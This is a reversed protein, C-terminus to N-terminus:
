RVEKRLWRQWQEMLEATKVGLVAEVALDAKRASDARAAEWYMKRLRDEDFREAVFRAFTWSSQYAARAREPDGTFDTDAPLAVPLDGESVQAALEPAADKLDQATGRRGVYEAVGETLWMPANEATMLRTAVHTLEHRLLIGIGAASLGGAVPALVVRQGVVTRTGRDIRSYVAAGAAAPILAPDTRTFATFQEDTGTATVVVRRPWETGWFASVAKVAPALHRRIMSVTAEAGPYSLISSSGGATAVDDVLLGEFAWPPLEPSNERDMPDVTPDTAVSGDGLLTWRDGYRAFALVDPVEIVPEDAGPRATGGLAFSLTVPSVWRDTAKAADLALGLEGGITRDAGENRAVRYALTRLVLNVGRPTSATRGGPRGPRGREGASPEVATSEDLESVSTSPVPEGSATAGASPEDPADSSTSARVPTPGLARQTQFWRERFEPTALPDILLALDDREGSTLAQVLQEFLANVGDVRQQEYVERPTTSVTSSPEPIPTQPESGCASLGITLVGVLGLSRLRVAGGGRAVGSRRAPPVSRGTRSM